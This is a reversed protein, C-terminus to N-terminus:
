QHLLDKLMQQREKITGVFGENASALAGAFLREQLAWGEDLPMQNVTCYVQLLIGAMMQITANQNIVTASLAHLLEDTSAPPIIIGLPPTTPQTDM